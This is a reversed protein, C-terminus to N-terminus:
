PLPPPPEAPPDDEIRRAFPLPVRITCQFPDNQLQM